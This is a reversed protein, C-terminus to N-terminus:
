ALDYVAWVAGVSPGKRLTVDERLSWLSTLDNKHRLAGTCAPM